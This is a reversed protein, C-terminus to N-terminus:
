RPDHHFSEAVADRMIPTASARPNAAKATIPVCVAISLPILVGNTQIRDPRTVDQKPPMIRSTRQEWLGRM